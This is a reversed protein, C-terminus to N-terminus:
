VVRNGVIKNVFDKATDVAYLTVAVGCLLWIVACLALGAILLIVLKLMTVM